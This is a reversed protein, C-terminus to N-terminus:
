RPLPPPRSRWRRWTDVLASVTATVLFALVLGALGPLYMNQTWHWIANSLVVAAFLSYQTFAWM